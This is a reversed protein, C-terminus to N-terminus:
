KPDEIERDKKLKEIEKAQKKIRKEQKKLKKNLKKIEKQSKESKKSLEKIAEILVATIQSYNVGKYGDKNTKVLEPLVKEINQAIVGIQKGKPFGKDTFEKKFSYSVGEISKVKGLADPISKIGEKYRRDSNIIAGRIYGNGTITLNGTTLTGSINLDGNINLTGDDLYLDGEKLKLDGKTLEMDGDTSTINGKTIAFDGDNININGDRVILNGDDMDISGSKVSLDGDTVELHKGATIKRASTINTAKIDGNIDAGGDRVNLTGMTVELSNGATIKGTSSITSSATIDGNNMEITGAVGGTGGRVTLRNNVNVPTNFRLFTGIEGYIYSGSGNDQNDIILTNSASTLTAGAENGIFINSNSQTPAAGIPSSELDKGANHGILVNKSGRVLNNGTETGISINNQGSHLKHLSKTGLSVNNQGSHLKHLSQSGLAINNAGTLYSTPNAGRLAAWGIGINNDARNFKLAYNGIAISSDAINPTPSNDNNSKLTAIGIAINDNGKNNQGSSYGMMINEEGKNNQLAFKGIAINNEKINNSLAEVGIAINKLGKNNILAKNGIAVNERGANNQLASKGIATNFKVRAIILDAVGDAAKLADVGFATNGGLDNLNLEEDYEVISNFGYPSLQWQSGDFKLFENKTAGMTALKDKNVAKDQIKATSIANNKIKSTSIADDQIKSSTISNDKILFKNSVVYIDGDVQIAKALNDTGGVLVYDHKLDKTIGSSASSITKKLKKIATNFQNTDVFTNYNTTTWYNNIKDWTLMGKDQKNVVRLGGSSVSFLAYPVSMMQQTSVTEFIKDKDTDIEVKLFKAGGAWDVYSLDKAYGAVKNGHGIIVNFLGREDTNVTHTEQYEIDGDIPNEKVISFRIPINANAIYSLKTDGGIGNHDEKKTKSIVGQYTIGAPPIAKDIKTNKNQAKVQYSFALVLAAIIYKTPMVTM